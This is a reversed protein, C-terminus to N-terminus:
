ERKSCEITMICSCGTKGVLLIQSFFVVARFSGDRCEQVKHETEPSSNFSRSASLAPRKAQTPQSKIPEVHKQVYGRLSQHLDPNFDHPNAKM